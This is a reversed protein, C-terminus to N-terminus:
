RFGPFPIESYAVIAINRFELSGKLLLNSYDNVHVKDGRKWTLPFHRFLKGMGDMLGDM